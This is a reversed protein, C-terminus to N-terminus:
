LIYGEIVGLPLAFLGPCVLVSAMFFLLYVLDRIELLTIM